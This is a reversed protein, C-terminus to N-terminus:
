VLFGLREFTSLLNRTEAADPDLELDHQVIELAKPLGLPKGGSQELLAEFVILAPTNLIHTTWSRENFLIGGSGMRRFRLSPYPYASKGM